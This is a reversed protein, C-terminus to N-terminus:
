FEFEILKGFKKYQEYLPKYKEVNEPIPHYETEIGKGNKEPSRRYKTLSRFCSSSGNCLGVCM